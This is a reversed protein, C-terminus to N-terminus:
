GNRPPERHEDIVRLRHSLLEPTADETAYDGGAEHYIYAAGRNTPPVVLHVSESDRVWEIRVGGESDSRFVARLFGRGASCAAGDLLLHVAKDVAEQTPRLRGYDDPKRGM